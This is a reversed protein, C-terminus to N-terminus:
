GQADVWKWTAPGSKEVPGGKKRYLHLSSDIVGGPRKTSTTAGLAQAKKWIESVHLAKGRADMLVQVAASRLSMGRDSKTGRPKRPERPKPGDASRKGNSQVQLWNELAEKMTILGSRKQELRSLSDEIEKLQGQIQEPDLM